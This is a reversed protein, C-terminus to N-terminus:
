YNDDSLRGYVLLCCSRGMCCERLQVITNDLVGSATRISRDISLNDSRFITVIQRKDPNWFTHSTDSVQISHSSKSHTQNCHRVPWIDLDIKEHIAWSLNIFCITCMNYAYIVSSNPNKYTDANRIIYSFTLIGHYVYMLISAIDNLNNGFINYHEQLQYHHDHMIYCTPWASLIEAQTMHYTSKPVPMGWQQDLDSPRILAEIRLIGGDTRTM